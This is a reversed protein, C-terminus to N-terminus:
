YRSEEAGSRGKRQQALDPLHHLHHEGAPERVRLLEHREEAGQLRVAERGHGRLDRPSHLAVSNAAEEIQSRTPPVGSPVNRASPPPMAPVKSLARRAQRGRLHAQITAAAGSSAELAKLKRERKRKAGVPVQFTLLMGAKAGAPVVLKVRVGSPTTAQVRHGPSVGEPVTIEFTEEEPGADDAAPAGRDDM